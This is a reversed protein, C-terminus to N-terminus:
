KKVKRQAKVYLGTTCPKHCYLAQKRPLHSLFKDGCMICKYTKKPKALGRHTTCPKHCFVNGKAKPTFEKGCGKCPKPKYIGRRKKLAYHKNRCWDKSALNWDQPCFIQTARGMYPKKCYICFKETRNTMRIHPVNIGGLNKLDEKSHRKVKIGMKMSEWFLELCKEPPVVELLNGDGDFRRVEHM